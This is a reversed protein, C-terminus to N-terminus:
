RHRRQRELEGGDLAVDRLGADVAGGFQAVAAEAGREAFAEGEHVLAGHVGDSSAAHSAASGTSALEPSM